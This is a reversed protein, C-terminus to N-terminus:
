NNMQYVKGPLNKVMGSFELGLMLGQLKSMEIKTNRAVVDLTAKNEKSLFDIILKEEGTCDFQIHQQEPKKEKLFQDWNMGLILDEASEILIAQHNKIFKNCGKSWRDGPKGPVAFVDRHYSNAIDATILAGGKAGSEVVITADSMGAIIRNRSIFNKRDMKACTHFDSILAGHHIIEQATSRHMSPYVRDLGHGMVAFTSLGHALAAKHAAIDIGYALGSVVIMHDFHAALSQILEGTFAIGDETANRTGVVSIMKDTEFIEGRYYLLFPADECQKLRLPYNKDFFSIAKINYKEMRKLEEEAEQLSREKIFLNATMNGIGPIETLTRRSATFVSKYDGLYALLKRITASGIGNVISLAIAYLLHDNM